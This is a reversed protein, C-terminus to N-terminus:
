RVAGVPDGGIKRVESGNSPPGTFHLDEIVKEYQLMCTTKDFLKTM